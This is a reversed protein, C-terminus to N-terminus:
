WCAWKRLASSAGFCSLLYNCSMPFSNLHKRFGTFFLILFRSLPAAWRHFIYYNVPTIVLVLLDSGITVFAVGMLLRPHTKWIDRRENMFENEMVRIEERLHLALAFTTFGSSGQVGSYAVNAWGVPIDYPGYLGSIIAVGLLVLAPAEVTSVTLTIVRAARLQVQDIVGLVRKVEGGAEIATWLIFGALICRFLVTWASSEIEARLSRVDGDSDQNSSLPGMKAEGRGSGSM